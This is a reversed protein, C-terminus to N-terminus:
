RHHWRQRRRDRLRPLGRADRKRRHKLMMTCLAAKTCMVGKIEPMLFSLGPLRDSTPSRCELSPVVISRLQSPLKDLQRWLSVRAEFHARFTVALVSTLNSLNLEPLRLPPARTTQNRCVSAIVVCPVPALAPFQRDAAASVASSLCASQARRHEPDVCCRFPASILIHSPGFTKRGPGELKKRKEERGVSDGVAECSRSSM